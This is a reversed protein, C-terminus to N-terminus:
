KRVGFVSSIAILFHTETIVGPLWWMIMYVVCLSVIGGPVTDACDHPLKLTPLTGLQVYEACVGVASTASGVSSPAPLGSPWRIAGFV